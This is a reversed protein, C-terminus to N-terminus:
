CWARGCCACGCWFWNVLEAGVVVDGLAVSEYAVYAHGGHGGVSGTGTGLAPAQAPAHVAAVVPQQLAQGFCSSPAAPTAM